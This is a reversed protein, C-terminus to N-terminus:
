NLLDLTPRRRLGSSGSCGTRVTAGVVGGHCLRARIAPLFLSQMILARVAFDTAVASAQSYLLKSALLIAAIERLSPLRRM